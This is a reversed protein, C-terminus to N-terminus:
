IAMHKQAERFGRFSFHQLVIFSWSVFYLWSVLCIQTTSIQPPTPLGKRATINCKIFNLYKNPVFHKAFFM